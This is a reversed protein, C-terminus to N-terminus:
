EKTAFYGYRTFTGETDSEYDDGLGEFDFYDELEAPLDGGKAELIASGLEASTEVDPFFVYAKTEITEVVSGFAEEDVDGGFFADFHEIAAAWLKADDPNFNEAGLTQFAETIDDGDDSGGVFDDLMGIIIDIAESKKM